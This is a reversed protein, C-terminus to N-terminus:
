TTARASASSPPAGHAPARWALARLGDRAPEPQRRADGGGQEVEVAHEGPRRHQVGRRPLLCEVRHQGRLSLGREVGHGVVGPVDIAPRALVAHAPQEGRAADRQRVVAHTRDGRVLVLQELAQQALPRDLGVGARHAVQAGHAVGAERGRDHRRALVRLLHQARRADGVQEVRPDVARDGLLALERALGRGVGVEGRRARQRDLRGPGRHELVREGPDRGAAGPPETADDADVAFGSSELVDRCLHLTVPDAEVVLARRDARKASAPTPGSRKLFAAPSPQAATAAAASDQAYDGAPPRRSRLRSEAM